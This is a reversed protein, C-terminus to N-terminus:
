KTNKNFFDFLDNYEVMEEDSILTKNPSKKTFQTISTINWKIDLPLLSTDLVSMNAIIANEKLIFDGNFIINWEEWLIELWTKENILIKENIKVDLKVRHEDKKSIYFINFFWSYDKTLKNKIKWSLIANEMWNNSYFSLELLNKDKEFDWLLMKWKIEWDEFIMQTIINNGEEENNKTRIQLKNKDFFLINRENMLLVTHIYNENFLVYNVNKIKNRNEKDREVKLMRLQWNNLKTIKNKNIKERNMIEDYTFLEIYNSWLKKNIKKILRNNPMIYFDNWKNKYVFFMKEQKLLNFLDEKQQKIKTEKINNLYPNESIIKDMKKVLFWKNKQKNININFEKLMEEFEKKQKEFDEESIFMWLLDNYKIDTKLDFDKINIQTRKKGIKERLEEHNLLFNVESDLLSLDFLQKSEIRDVIKWHFYIINSNFNLKLIDKTNLLSVFPIIKNTNDNAFISLDWFNKNIYSYEWKSIENITKETKNYFWEIKNFNKEINKVINKQLKFLKLEVELQEKTQEKILSDIKYQENNHIAYINISNTLFLSFILLLSIVKNKKM